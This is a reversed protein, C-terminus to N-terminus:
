VMATPPITMGLTVAWEVRRPWPLPGRQAATRALALLETFGVGLFRGRQEAAGASPNSGVLHRFGIGTAFTANAPTSVLASMM